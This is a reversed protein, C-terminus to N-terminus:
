SVYRFSFRNTTGNKTKKRIIILFVLITLKYDNNTKIVVFLFRFFHLARKKVVFFFVTCVRVRKDDNALLSVVPAARNHSGSAIRGLLSLLCQLRTLSQCYNHVCCHNRPRASDDGERCICARDVDDFCVGILDLTARRFLGVFWDSASPLCYAM